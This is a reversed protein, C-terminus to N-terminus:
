PLFRGSQWFVGLSVFREDRTGGPRTVVSLDVDFVDKVVSWRAGARLFPRESDQGFVEALLTLVDGKPLEAALGWVTIDRGMERDRSWGANAHVLGDGVAVSIPVSVFPNGWGRYREQLPRRLTGAVVGIGWPSDDGVARVLAKAQVYTEAFRSSGEARARAFGAQWEVGGGFNCAPVLWAQSADRSRDIWSEVQCRKDDLVSADETTLPRGAVAPLSALAAVWWIWRM